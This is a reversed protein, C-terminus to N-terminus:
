NKVLLAPTTPMKQIQPDRIFSPLIIEGQDVLGHQLFLGTLSPVRCIYLFDLNSGSKIYERVKQYGLLYSADKPFGGYDKTYKMGRKVRYAILFARDPEIFETLFNYITRFSQHVMSVAKLRLYYEQYSKKTITGTQIENFVAMGEGYLLSENYTSLKLFPNNLLLANYNQLVHSEVEHVILRKVNTDFRRVRSGIIVRKKGARVIHPSFPDIRVMADSIGYKDVLVELLLKAISNADLLKHHEENQFSIAPLMTLVKEAYIKDFKFLRKAYYWYEDTGISSITKELLSLNKLYSKLYQKIDRPITLTILQKNLIKIEKEILTLNFTRYYFVPNYINSKFFKEKEEEFNLPTLTTTGLVLSKRITLCNNVFALADGEERDSM